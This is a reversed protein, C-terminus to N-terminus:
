GGSRRLRTKDSMGIAAKKMAQYPLECRERGPAMGQEGIAGPDVRTPGHRRDDFPEQELAGQRVCDTPETIFDSPRKGIGQRWDGIAASAVGLTRM